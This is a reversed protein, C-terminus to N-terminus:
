RTLRARACAGGSSAVSPNGAKRSRIDELSERRVLLRALGDRVGVVPLRGVLNCGSAMSLHYAGAM